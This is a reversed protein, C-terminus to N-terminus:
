EGLNFKVRIKHALIELDDIDLIYLYRDKDDSEWYPMNIKLFLVIDSLKNFNDRTRSLSLGDGRGCCGRNKEEAM